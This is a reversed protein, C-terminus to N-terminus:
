AGAGDDATLRRFVDELSAQGARLDLAEVGREALFATLRAVTAPDAADVVYHEGHQRVEVGLPGFDVAAAVRFRIERRTGRVEDLTGAALVRGRDLVVVRDAVREAEDLEHTALVVCCGRAALARVIERIAARGNVDVGSTPEDLFAIDPRAALALALSLRQREGGSLRRWTSRTRTALGVQELLDDARARGGPLACFLRVVDGVRASPYVGGDQLMVGMREALRRQERAPDMGLVRVVGSNARRLGECVEITSTKGAGNPGLVATVEGLHAQLSVHDVAVLDGYCVVLDAVELAPEPVTPSGVTKQGPRASPRARYTAQGHDVDAEQAGLEIGHPRAHGAAM